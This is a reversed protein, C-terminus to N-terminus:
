LLGQKTIIVPKENLISHGLIGSSAEPNKYPMMIFDSEKIYSNFDEYPIFCTDLIISSEGNVLNDLTSKKITTPKGVILLVVNEKIEKPLSKIAQISEIVGKNRKLSGIILFIKASRKIKYKSRIDLKGTNSFQDIPVPDGIFTFKQSKFIRNLYAVKRRDNLIFIKHVQQTRLFRLIIIHRKISEYIKPQIMKFVIDRKMVKESVGLSKAAILYEDNLADINNIFVAKFSGMILIFLFLYEGWMSSGFWSEFLFILFIPLFYNKLILLEGLAPAIQKFTTIISSSMKLIFYSLIFISYIAGFTLLLASGFNYEVFLSHVSDILISPKPLVKNQPLIFEFLLIYVFLLGSFFSLLIRYRFTKINDLM